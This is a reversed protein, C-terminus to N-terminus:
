AGEAEREEEKPPPAVLMSSLDPLITVGKPSKKPQVVSGSAAAEEEEPEPAPQDAAVEPEPASAASVPRESSSTPEEAEPRGEGAVEAGQESAGAEAAAEEGDRAAETFPSPKSRRRRRRRRPEGAAEEAKPTAEAATPEPTAEVGDAGQADRSEGRRGEEAAAAAGGRGRGSRRGSRRSRGTTGGTESAAEAAPAEAPEVTEEASAAASEDDRASSEAEAERSEAAAETAASRRRPRRRRRRRRGSSGEGDGEGKPSAVGPLEVRGLKKAPEVDTLPEDEVEAAEEATWDTASASGPEVGLFRCLFGDVEPLSLLTMNLMDTARARTNADPAKLLLLAASDRGVGFVDVLGRFRASYDQWSGTKCEIWLLRGEVVAMIDSEFERGDPLAGKVNYLLQCKAPSVHARLRKGVMMSVYNELWGGTLFQGVQGDQTPIVRLAKKPSRHYYFDKLMGHRHLLTGFQVAASREKESFHEIEIKSGRGSAVLRKLRDYFPALLDYHTGLHRALHDFAENRSLDDQGEYVVVGLEKLYDVLPGVPADEPPPKPARPKREGEGRGTRSGRGSDGSREVAEGASASARRSRRRRSRRGGEGGEASESSGPGSGSERPLLTKELLKQLARLEEVADHLKEVVDDLSARAPEPSRRRVADEENGDAAGKLLRQFLGMTHM